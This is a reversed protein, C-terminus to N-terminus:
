CAYPPPPCFPHPIVAITSIARSSQQAPLVKQVGITPGLLGAMLMVIAMVALVVNKKLHTVM